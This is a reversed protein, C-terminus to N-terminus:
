HNCNRYKKRPNKVSMMGRLPALNQNWFSHSKTKVVTTKGKAITLPSAIHRLVSATLWTQYIVLM